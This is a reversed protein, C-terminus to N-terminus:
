RRQRMFHIFVWSRMANTMLIQVVFRELINIGYRVFGIMRNCLMYRQIKEESKFYHWGGRRKYMEKDVRVKVLTEPINAFRKNKLAMRIWLYYDENWFWEQYSGSDLVATRKYMVTMHNFPCRKKMYTKIQVDNCPVVRKGVIHDIDDTFEAINSGVIDVDNHEELFDLQREFRMKVSIDDSDMRAILEYSCTELAIRLACGLGKNKELYVVRFSEIVGGLLKQYKEIVDQIERPIPGDVVLVVEAPKVTQDLTVSKLARDFWEANDKGYVSMAVSFPPYEKQTIINMNIKEMTKIDYSNRMLRFMKERMGDSALVEGAFRIWINYLYRLFTIQNYKLMYKQIGKESEYYKRGGRRASMGAGTRVNVLVNQINEFIFGCQAMRIWLYYDENCYWDLYGGASLVSAKKYMVSVHNMPCRKKMYSKVDADFEPVSRVGTINQENGVFETIIGGVVDLAPNALFRELQICFRDSVSIDDSDMRAILDFSCREVAM